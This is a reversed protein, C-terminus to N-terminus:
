NANERNLMLRLQARFEAAGGNAPHRIHHADVEQAHLHNRAVDGVAIIQCDPNFLARLGRLIEANGHVEAESPRRNTLPAAERHPHFPFTNWLVVNNAQQAAMIEQWVITATPETFGHQREQQNRCADVHSTRRFFGIQGLIAQETVFNKSGSLLRESTMAIGTFRAGQYGPAEAIMITHATEQRHRLYAGLQLCRQCFAERRTDIGAEYCNYPNAANGDTLKERLGVIFQDVSMHTM